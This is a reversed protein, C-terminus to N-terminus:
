LVEYVRLFDGCGVAIRRGDPSLAAQAPLHSKKKAQRDQLQYPMRAIEKGSRMDWLVWAHAVLPNGDEMLFGILFPVAPRSMDSALLVAAGQAIEFPAGNQVRPHRRLEVKREIDFCRLKMPRMAFPFSGICVTKGGDCFRVEPNASLTLGGMLEANTIPDIVM